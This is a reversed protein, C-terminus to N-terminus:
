KKKKKKSTNKNNIVMYTGYGIIGLIVIPILYKTKSSNNNKDLVKNVKILKTDDYVNDKAKENTIVYNGLKTIYFSLKNNRAKIEQAILNFKNDSYNYVNINNLDLIEKMENTVNVDVLVKGPLKSDGEFSLVIGNNINDKIEEKIISNEINNISAKLDLNGEVNEIDKGNITITINNHKVVINRDTGKVEKLIDESVISNEVYVNNDKVETTTEEEKKAETTTTEEKVSNTKIEDKKDEITEEESGVNVLTFTDAVVDGDKVIYKDGDVEGTLGDLTLTINNIDLAKNKVDITKNEKDISYKDSTIDYVKIPIEYYAQTIENGIGDYAFTINTVGSKLGIINNDNLNIINEDEINITLNLEEYYSMCYESLIIPFKKNKGVLISITENINNSGISVFTSTDQVDISTLKNNDLYAVQLQKNNSIDIDNLQNNSLSLYNLSTNKSLDIDTINNYSLNLSTLLTNTSLDINSLQNNYATLSELNSDNSINLSTLNNNYATLFKLNSNNSINLSTLNNDYINLYEIMTNNSLDINNLQTNALNLDRINPNHSLDLKGLLQNNNLHLTQIGTLYQVGNISTINQGGLWLTTITSLQTETVSSCTAGSIKNVVKSYFIPDDFGYEHLGNPKLDSPIDNIGCTVAGKMKGFKPLINLSVLTGSLLIMILLASIGLMIYSKKKLEKDALKPRGVKGKVKKM